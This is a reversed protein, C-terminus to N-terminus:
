VCEDFNAGLRLVDHLKIALKFFEIESLPGASPQNVVKIKLPITEGFPNGNPGRFVLAFEYIEDSAARNEHIKIPVQIKFTEQSKVEFDIPVNVMEVPLTSLDCTEDDMGLFCGEKWGWKTANRMQITPLIMQGPAAELVDDPKNVLLARNTKWPGGRKKGDKFNWDKCEAPVEVGLKDM